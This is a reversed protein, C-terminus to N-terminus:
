PLEVEYVHLAVPTDGYGGYPGGGFREYLDQGRFDDSFQGDAATLQRDEFHVRVTAGAKLGPVHIVVDKLEEPAPGLQDGRVVHQEGDPSALTTRGWEVRGGTHLFGIGDLLKDGADIKALPLELRAWKGAAPIPGMETAPGPVYDLCRGTSKDDWGMFGSAHRYFARLFWAAKDLDARYGGAAPKGLGGRADLPRRM